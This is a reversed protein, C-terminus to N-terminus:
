LTLKEELFDEISIRALSNFKRINEKAYEYNKKYLNM